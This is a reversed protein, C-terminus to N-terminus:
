QASGNLTRAIKMAHGFDEPLPGSTDMVVDQWSELWISLRERVNILAILQGALHRDGARIFVCGACCGLGDPHPPPTTPDDHNECIAILVRLGDEGADAGEVIRARGPAHVPSDPSLREIADWLEDVYNGIKPKTM